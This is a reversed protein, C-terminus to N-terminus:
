QVWHLGLAILGILFALGALWYNQSRLKDSQRAIQSILRASLAHEIKQASEENFQVISDNLEKKVAQLRPQLQQEFEDVQTNLEQALQARLTDTQGAVAREVQVVLNKEINALLQQGVADIKDELMPTLRSKVVSGLQVRVTSSVLEEISASVKEDVPHLEAQPEAEAQQQVLEAVNASASLFAQDLKGFVGSVSNPTPPKFLIDVAGFARVQDAYGQDDKSTYMAVPILSTGPNEKIIKLAQLGDMGPMTHDLFIADPQRQQLYDIAEEASEATSIQLNYDRLLKSLQVRSTKSDDVILINKINM